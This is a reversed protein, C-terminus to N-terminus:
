NFLPALEHRYSHLSKYWFRTIRDIGPVKNNQIKSIVTDLVTTTIQYSKPKINKCYESELTRLWIPKGNFNVKRGWIDKWFNEVEDMSPVKNIEVTDERFSGYVLTPKKAFLRNIRDRQIKKRHYSVKPSTTKLEQTLLKVRYVLTDRKVNEFKYQLRERIRRQHETYSNVCCSLIVQTHSIERRLRKIKIDLHEKITVAASYIVTNIDDFTVDCVYKLNDFHTKIIADIVKLEGDSPKKSM